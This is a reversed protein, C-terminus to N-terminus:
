KLETIFKATSFCQGRRAYQKLINKEFSFEGMSDMILRETLFDDIEEIPSVLFWASHRKIQSNSYSLFKLICGPNPQTRQDQGEEKTSPYIVHGHKLISHIFGLVMSQGGDTQQQYFGRTLSENTFTVRIFRSIFDKYKRLALCTEDEVEIQYYDLTPSIILRRQKM